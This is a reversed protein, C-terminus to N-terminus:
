KNLHEPFVAMKHEESGLNIILKMSYFENNNKSIPVSINNQDLKPGIM